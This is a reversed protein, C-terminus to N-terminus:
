YRPSRQRAQVEDFVNVGSGDRTTWAFQEVIRLRGDSRRVVRATSRGAHLEGSAERQVYRFVLDDGTRRGILCGRAIAGGAYRAFVRSGREIFRLRTDSGVVGQEATSSVFMTVGDLTM